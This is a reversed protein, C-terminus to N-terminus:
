RRAEATVIAVRTDLGKKMSKESIFSVGFCHFNFRYGLEVM